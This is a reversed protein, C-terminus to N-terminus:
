PVDIVNLYMAEQGMPMPECSGTEYGRRDLFERVSACQDWEDYPGVLVPWSQTTLMVAFYFGM